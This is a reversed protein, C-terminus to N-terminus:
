VKIGELINSLTISEYRRLQILRRVIKKFKKYNDAGFLEIPLVKKLVAFVFGIIQDYPTHLDIATVNKNLKSKHVLDEPLPCYYDLLAQHNCKKHRKLIATIYKSCNIIKKSPKIKKLGKKIIRTPDIIYHSKNFEFPFIEELLLDSSDKMITAANFIFVSPRFRHFLADKPQIFRSEM